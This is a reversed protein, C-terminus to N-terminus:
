VTVVVPPDRDVAVAARVLYMRGDESEMRSQLNEKGGPQPVRQQPNELVSELSARPIQRRVLEEEAHRSLIFRSM